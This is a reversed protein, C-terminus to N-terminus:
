WCVTHKESRWVLLVWLLFEFCQVYVPSFNGMPGWGNIMTLGSNSLSHIGAIGLGVVTHM